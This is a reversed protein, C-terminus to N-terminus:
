ICRMVLLLSNRPASQKEGNRERPSVVFSAFRTWGSWERMWQRVTQNCRSRGWMTEEGPVLEWSKDTPGAPTSLRCEEPGRDRMSKMCGWSGQPTVGVKQHLMYYACVILGLWNKGAVYHVLCAQKEPMIARDLIIKAEDWHNEMLPYTKTNDAGLLPRTSFPVM